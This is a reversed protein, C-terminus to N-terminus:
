RGRYRSRGVLNQSPDWTSRSIERLGAGPSWSGDAGHPLLAAPEIQIPNGRECAPASDWTQLSPGVVESLLNPDWVGPMSARPKAVKAVLVGPITLGGSLAARTPTVRAVLTGTRDTDGTDGLRLTTSGVPGELNLDYTRLAPAAGSVFYVLGEPAEYGSELDFDVADSNPPTYAV